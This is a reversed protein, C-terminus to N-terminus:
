NEDYPDDINMKDFQAKVLSNLRLSSFKELELFIGLAYEKAAENGQKKDVDRISDDILSVIQEYKLIGEGYNERKM